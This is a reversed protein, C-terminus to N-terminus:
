ASESFKNLRHRLPTPLSEYVNKMGPRIVKLYVGMHTVGRLTVPLAHDRVGVEINSWEHKYHDAPALLDYTEFGRAMLAQLAEEMLLRGPGFKSFWPNYTGIHAYYYKKWGFGIEVALPERDLYLVSVLCQVPNQGGRALRLILTETAENIIASTLGYKKLWHKKFLLAQRASQQAVIGPEFMEFHLTGIEDLRRRFRARHKRQSHKSSADLEEWNAFRTLDIAPASQPGPLNYAQDNLFPAIASGARVKRLYLLDIDPQALFVKWAEVIWADSAPNRAVIIDGYQTLPEGLWHAERVNLLGPETLALPWILVLKGDHWGTLIRISWSSVPNEDQAACWNWCWDYTQFLNTKSSAAEELSRWHHEINGLDELSRLMRFKLLSGSTGSPLDLRTHSTRM